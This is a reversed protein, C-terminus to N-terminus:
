QAVEKKVFSNRIWLAVKKTLVVAGKTAAKCGYFAFIGLGACVAAAGILAVGSIGNGSVLIAGGAVAGGLACGVFSAFVAWFCLIVAWMSVWLALAVAFAAALLSLWLPSGLALLLIQGFSRRKKPKPAPKPTEAEAVIQGAIEDASGVAAVAEEESLGEEMRDEIMEVYFELRERAEEEPLASLKENLELLFQMKTM